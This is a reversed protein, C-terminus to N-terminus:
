IEEKKFCAYEEFIYKLAKERAVLMIYLDVLDKEYVGLEEVCMEEQMRCVQLVGLKEVKMEYMRSVADNTILEFEEEAIKKQRLEGVSFV